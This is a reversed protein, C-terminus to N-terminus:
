RAPGDPARPRCTANDVLKDGLGTLDHGSIARAPGSEAMSDAKVARDRALDASRSVGFDGPKAAQDAFDLM